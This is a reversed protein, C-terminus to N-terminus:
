GTGLLDDLDLDTLLAAARQVQRENRLPGPKFTGELRQVTELTTEPTIAMPIAAAAAREAVYGLPEDGGTIVLLSTDGALAALAAEPKDDRCVVVAKGELNFYTRGTDHSIPAIAISECVEGEGDTLFRVTANAPLAALADRLGPAMLGQDQPVTTLAGGDDDGFSVWGKFRAGLVSRAAEAPPGASVAVAQLRDCATAPDVGASIEAVLVASDLDGLISAAQTLGLPTAGVGFTLRGFLAADVMAAKDDNEGIRVLLVERGTNQLRQALGAALITKGRMGIDSFVVINRGM